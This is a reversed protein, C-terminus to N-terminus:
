YHAIQYPVTWLFAHVWVYAIILVWKCFYPVTNTAHQWVSLMMHLKICKQSFYFSFFLAALLGENSAWLTAFKQTKAANVILIMM